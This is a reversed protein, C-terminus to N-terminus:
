PVVTRTFAATHRLGVNKSPFVVSSLEQRFISKARVGIEHITMAVSIVFHNILAVGDVSATM